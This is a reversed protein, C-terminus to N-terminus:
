ARRAMDAARPRAPRGRLRGAHRLHYPVRKDAQRVASPAAPRQTRRSRSDGSLPRAHRGADPHSCVPRHALPAASAPAVARIREFAAYADAEALATLSVTYAM